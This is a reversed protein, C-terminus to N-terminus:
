GEYKITVSEQSKGAGVLLIAKDFLRDVVYRGDLYRYNVLENAGKKGLVTLTPADGTRVSDPMDIYIKEGDNYVRTPAWKAKGKIEYAFDLDAASKFQPMSPRYEVREVYETKPAPVMSQLQAVVMQSEGTYSFGVRAMYNVSSSKLHIHYTRKDTTITLSTELNTDTPRILVHPIIGSPGSRAAEFSWRASDGVIVNMVDENPELEIDCLRLPACVITPQAQGFLFNVKGDRGMTVIDSGQQWMSSLQVARVQTETTYPKSMGDAFASIPMICTLAVTSTLTLKLLKTM